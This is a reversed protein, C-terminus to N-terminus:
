ADWLVPVATPSRFTKGRIHADIAKAKDWDYRLNPLRDLLKNMAIGIEMKALHLGICTHVGNGFTIHKVLPRTIDFREPNDIFAPDRNAAGLLPIVMSDAPIKVGALETERLTLRPVVQIPSDTRLNEEIAKPVLKRDQRVAELQDPNTLLNHLLSGLSRYTTEIGAPLLLLLFSYIDEDDLKEGDIEARVLESIMDDRPQARRADLFAKVYARFEGGAKIAADPNGAVSVIDIAWLQFQHFNEPPLGIVRSVVQSPFSFNFDHVLDASGREVIGDILSDVVKHVLEHEWRALLKPRLAPAILNRYRAHGPEDMGVLVRDGMSPGMMNQMIISSYTQHDQLATVIDAHRYLFVLPNDAGFREMDVEVPMSVRRKAYEPFPDRYDGPPDFPVEFYLLKDEFSAVPEPMVTESNM